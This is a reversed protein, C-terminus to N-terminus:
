TIVGFGGRCEWLLLFIFSVIYYWYQPNRERIEKILLIIKSIEDNIFNGTGVFSGGSM